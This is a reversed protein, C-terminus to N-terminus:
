FRKKLSNAIKWNEQGNLEYLQMDLQGYLQNYLEMYLQDNLQQRVQEDKNIKYRM